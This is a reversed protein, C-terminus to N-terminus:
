DPQRAGHRVSLIFVTDSLVEYRLIYPPVTVLERAGDDRLRGRHPFRMLRDGAAFLRGGMDAAADSDFQSIYAVIGRVDDIAQPRWVVNAM